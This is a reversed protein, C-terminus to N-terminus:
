SNIFKKIEQKKTDMVTHILLETYFNLATYSDNNGPIPYQIGYSYSNSDLIGIIPIQLKIAEKILTTNLNTELIFLVEPKFFFNFNHFQNTINKQTSLDNFKLNKRQQTLAYLMSRQKSSFSSIGIDSSLFILNNFNSTYVDTTSIIKHSEKILSNTNQIKKTENSFWKNKQINFNNHVHQLYLSKFNQPNIRIDFKSIRQKQLINVVSNPVNNLSFINKKIFKENSFSIKQSPIYFIYGRKLCIKKIFYLARKLMILTQELDIIFIGDRMGLLFYSTYPNWKNIKHGLHITSATFHKILFM